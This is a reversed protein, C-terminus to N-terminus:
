WVIQNWCDGEICTLRRTKGGLVVEADETINLWYVNGGFMQTITNAEAFEPRPDYFEWAKTANNFRFVRVLKEGLPELGKVVAVPAKEPLGEDIVTYNVSATTREEARGVGVVLAYTGPDIGPVILDEINLKGDRDTYFVRGGLVDKTGLEISSVGEFTRFGEGSVTIESGIAGQTPAVMVEGEPIDHTTTETITDDGNIVM